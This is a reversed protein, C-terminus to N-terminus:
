KLSEYEEPAFGLIRRGILCGRTNKKENGPRLAILALSIRGLLWPFGVHDEEACGLRTVRDQLPYIICSFGCITTKAIASKKTTNNRIFVALFM